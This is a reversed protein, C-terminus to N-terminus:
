PPRIWPLGRGVQFCIRYKPGSFRAGREETKDDTFHTRIIVKRMPCSYPEFPVMYNSCSHGGSHKGRTSGPFVGLGTKSGTDGLM